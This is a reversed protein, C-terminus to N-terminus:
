ATGDVITVGQMNEVGQKYLADRVHHFWVHNENINSAGLQDSADDHSFTGINTTDAPLVAGDNQVTATNTDANWAIQLDM